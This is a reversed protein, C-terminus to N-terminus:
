GLTKRMVPRSVYTRGIEEFGAADFMSKTGTFVASPSPKARLRAVDVPHGDLVAAGHERAFEAAARLLAIGVGHGRQGRRVVFCSVWWAAGDGRGGDDGFLRCLARNGVVGPLTHRPVVRSWGVPNEDLYAVLGIPVSSTAIEADLAAQNDASDHRRFRQCWCADRGGRGTLVEAVDVWNHSTAPRVEISM